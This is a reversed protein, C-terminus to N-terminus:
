PILVLKALYNISAQTLRLTTEATPFGAWIIGNAVISALKRTIIRLLASTGV